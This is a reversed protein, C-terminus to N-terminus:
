GLEVLEVIRAIRTVLHYLDIREIRVDEARQVSSLRTRVCAGRSYCRRMRKSLRGKSTISSTAPAALAPVAIGDAPVATLSRLASRVTRSVCLPAATNRMSSAFTSTANLSLPESTTLVDCTM